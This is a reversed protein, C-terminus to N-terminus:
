TWQEVGSLGGGYVVEFIDWPVLIGGVAGWEEMDRKRVDGSGGNLGVM